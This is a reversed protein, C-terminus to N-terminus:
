LFRFTVFVPASNFSCRGWGSLKESGFKYFTAWDFDQFGPARLSFNVCVRFFLNSGIVIYESMVMYGSGLELM